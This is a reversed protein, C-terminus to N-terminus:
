GGKGSMLWDNVDGFGSYICSRDTVNTGKEMLFGTASRGADDNDLYLEVTKYQDFIGIARRAFSTSNLVLFDAERKLDPFLTTISLLDFMGETVILKKYGNCILTTDKPSSCSKFYKNRLEWGGSDNKLGIAFYYSDGVTYHVERCYRKAAILSIKRNRLYQLLAQHQILRVQKIQTKSSKPVIARQEAIGPDVTKLQALIELAQSVSVKSLECILDIINGGMGLGHDYWSNKIKSVVFSAQTESRLPSLFWAAKENDKTPFHGLIELAKEIPIRRATGCTIKKNKM